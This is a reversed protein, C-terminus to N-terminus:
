LSGTSTHCNTKTLEPGAPPPWPRAILQPTKRVKPAAVDGLREARLRVLMPYLYFCAGHAFISKALRIDCCRLSSNSNNLGIHIPQWARTSNWNPFRNCTM